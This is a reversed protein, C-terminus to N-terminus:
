GYFLLLFLIVLKKVIISLFCFLSYVTFLTKVNETVEFINLLQDEFAKIFKGFENLANNAKLLTALECFILIVSM